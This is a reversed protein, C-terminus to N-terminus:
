WAEGSMPNELCSYQLPTGNGEGYSTSLLFIAILRNDLLCFLKSMLVSPAGKEAKRAGDIIM